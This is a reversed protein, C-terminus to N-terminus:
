RTRGARAAMMAVRLDALTAATLPEGIELPWARFGGRVPEINFVGQWAETLAALEVADRCRLGLRSLIGKLPGHPNRELEPRM